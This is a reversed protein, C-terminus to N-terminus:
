LLQHSRSRRRGGWAGHSLHAADLVIMLASQGARVGSV